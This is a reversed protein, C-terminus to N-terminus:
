KNVEEAKLNDYETFVALIYDILTIYQAIGSEIFGVFQNNYYFQDKTIKLYKFVPPAM